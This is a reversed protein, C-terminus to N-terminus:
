SNVCRIEECELMTFRHAGNVDTCRRVRYTVGEIELETLHKLDQPRTLNQVYRVYVRHTVAEDINVSDWYASGGNIEVKGWVEAVNRETETLEADGTPIHSISVLRVRRNLEGVSPLRM